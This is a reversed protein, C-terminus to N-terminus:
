ICIIEPVILINKDKENKTSVGVVWMPVSDSPSHPFQITKDELSFERRFPPIQDIGYFACAMIIVLIWDPLYSLFIRRTHPSKWDVSLSM